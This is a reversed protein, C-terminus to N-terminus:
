PHASESFTGVGQLTQGFLIDTVGALQIVEIMWGVIGKSQGNVTPAVVGGSPYAAQFAGASLGRVQPLTQTRGCLADFSQTSDGGGNEGRFVVDLTRDAAVTGPATGPAFVALRTTVISPDAFNGSLIIPARTTANGNDAIVGGGFVRSDSHLFAAPLRAVLLLNLDIVISSGAGFDWRIPVNGANVFFVEAVGEQFTPAQTSVDVRLTAGAGINQFVPGIEQNCDSRYYKIGVRSATDPHTNSIFLLTQATDNAAGAAFSKKSFYFLLRSGGSPIFASAEGVWTLGIVVLFLGCLFAKTQSHM